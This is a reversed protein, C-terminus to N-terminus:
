NVMQHDGDTYLLLSTQKVNEQKYSRYIIIFLASTAFVIAMGTCAMSIYIYLFPNIPSMVIMINNLLIAVGYLLFATFGYIEEFCRRDGM